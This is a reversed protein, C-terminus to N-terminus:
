TKMNEIKAVVEDAAKEDAFFVVTKGIRKILDPIQAPTLAETTTGIQECSKKLAAKAIFESLNECLLKEIQQALENAM